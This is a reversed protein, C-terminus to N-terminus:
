IRLEKKISNDQQALESPMINKMILVTRLIAVEQRITAIELRVESFQKDVDSFKGNIWLFGSFVMAAITFLEIHEKIWDKM